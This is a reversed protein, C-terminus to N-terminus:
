NKHTVWTFNQWTRLKLIQLHVMCSKHLTYTWWKQWVVRSVLACFSTHNRLYWNAKSNTNSNTKQLVFSYHVCKHMTKHKKKKHHKAQSFINESAHFDCTVSSLFNYWLFDNIMGLSKHNPNWKTMFRLLLINIVFIAPLLTLISGCVTINKDDTVHSVM